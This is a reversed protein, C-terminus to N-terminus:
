FGQSLGQFLAGRAAAVVGAWDGPASQRILRLSAYWECRAGTRGWRWDPAFPLLVWAPRGLAGALHAIATDSTIVLDLNAMIAATDVFAEDRDVDAGLEEAGAKRISSVDEGRQLILFRANLANNPLANNPLENGQGAILATIHEPPVSRLYDMEYTPNGRWAIGIRARGDGALHREWRAVLGPEAHLYPGIPAPARDGLLHPVSLLPAHFDAEPFDIHPMAADDPIYSALGALGSMVRQLRRPGALHVKGGKAALVPVYRAFQITDGLGQECRLILSRGAVDEGRWRKGPLGALRQAIAPDALRHEFEAWGEVFRGAMLLAQALSSRIPENGPALAVASRYSDIAADFDGQHLYTLAQNAMVEADDPRLALARAFACQAETFRGMDRLVNALNAHTQPNDSSLRTAELMMGHAAEFARARQQALGAGVLAVALNDRIDTRTPDLDAANRLAQEAAEFQNLALRTTGLAVWSQIDDANNTAALHFARAAQALDGLVRLTMGYNYLLGPAIGGVAIARAFIPLAESHLGAENMIVGLLHLAEANNPEASLITRCLQTAGALDGQVQRAQAESLIDQEAM